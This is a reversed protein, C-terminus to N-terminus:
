SNQSADQKMETICGGDIQFYATTSRNGTTSRMRVGEPTDTIDVLQLPSLDNALLMTLLTALDVTHSGQVFLTGPKILSGVAAEDNAKVATYFDQVVATGPRPSAANPVCSATVALMSLILSM